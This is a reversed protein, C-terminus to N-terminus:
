LHRRDTEEMWVAVRTATALSNQPAGDFCNLFPVGDRYKGGYYVGLVEGWHKFHRLGILM